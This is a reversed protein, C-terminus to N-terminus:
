KAGGNGFINKFLVDAFKGDLESRTKNEVDKMLESQEKKVSEQSNKLLQNLEGEPKDEDEKDEDKDEDGKDDDEKKDDDGEKELKSKKKFAQAIEKFNAGPKKKRYQKIFDTWASLDAQEGIINEVEDLVDRSKSLLQDRREDLESDDIRGMLFENLVINNAKCELEAKEIGEKYEQLEKVKAEFNKLIALTDEDVEIESSLEPGDPSQGKDKNPYKYPYKKKKVLEESMQAGGNNAENLMTKRVAPDLVLSYSQTSLNTAVEQGEVETPDYDFTPSVGFKAGLALKQALAKDRIELDAYIGPGEDGDNKWKRNLVAGAYNSVGTGQRTDAHDCVLNFEESDSSELEIALEKETYLLGNHVGENMVLKNKLVFPLKIDEVNKMAIKALQASTLESRMLENEKQLEEVEPTSFMESLSLSSDM